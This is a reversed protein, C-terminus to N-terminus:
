RLFPVAEPQKKILVLDEIISRIIELLNLNDKIIRPYIKPHTNGGSYIEFWKWSIDENKKQLFIVSMQFIEPDKLLTM